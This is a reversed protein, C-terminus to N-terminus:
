PGIPPSPCATATQNILGANRVKSFDVFTPRGGCDFDARAKDVSDVLQNIYGANKIIQFASVCPRCVPKEFRDVLFQPAECRM